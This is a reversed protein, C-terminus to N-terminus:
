VPKYRNCKVKTHTCTSFIAVCLCTSASIPSHFSFFIALNLLMVGFSTSHFYFVSVAISPFTLCQSVSFCLLSLACMLVYALNKGWNSHSLLVTKWDREMRWVWGVLQWMNYLGIQIFSPIFQFSLSLPLWPCMSLFLFTISEPVTLKCSAAQSPKKGTENSLTIAHRSSVQDPSFASLLAATTAPQLAVIGRQSLSCVCM